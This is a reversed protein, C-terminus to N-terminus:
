NADLSDVSEGIQQALSVFDIRLFDLFCELLVTAGHFDVGFFM